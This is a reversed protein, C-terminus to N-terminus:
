IRLISITEPPSVPPSYAQTPQALSFRVPASFDIAALQIVAPHPFSSDFRSNALYPDLQQVTTDCCSHSDPMMASGCKDAMQLCCDREAETLADDSVMCAMLPTGWVCLTLILAALKSTWKLM